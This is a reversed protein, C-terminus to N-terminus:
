VFEHIHNCAYEVFGSALVRVYQLILCCDGVMISLFTNLDVDKVNVIFREWVSAGISGAVYLGILEGKLLFVWTNSSQQPNSTKVCKKPSAKIRPM